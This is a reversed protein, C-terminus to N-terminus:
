MYEPAEMGILAMGTKMVSCVARTLHLRANKINEEANLIPNSNYYKNYAKAIETIHRTIVFPENRDAAEVVADKFAGLLKVLNYEEDSSLNAYDITEAIQGAKRLISGGRVNTYQVYPGSDGDFSLIDEWTFTVDKDRNNKLFAYMLAGIGVQKATEEKNTLSPNKAEIIEATKNVAESIVEKALIVDGKRTSLKKDAFKVLGHALHICDKSWEYGMVDLMKFIQQFHLSQTGGVVYISKTFDYTRKRYLAAALDRTAYITAGDSKIILCSPLGYKELDVIKAGDSDILLKKDELIQVIEDMKDGYFSEGKYSDFVVNLQNYVGKFEALSLERFKEWLATAEPDNDELKRFYGRAEDDLTPDKEAEEHFKVYIKLLENIPDQEIIKEDGWRKYASILKGFQTGGTGM